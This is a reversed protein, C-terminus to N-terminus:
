KQVETDFFYMTFNKGPYIRQTQEQLTKFMLPRAMHIVRSFWSTCNVVIIYWIVTNKLNTTWPRQFYATAQLVGCLALCKTTTPKYLSIVGGM